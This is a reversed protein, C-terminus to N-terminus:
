SNPYNLATPVSCIWLKTASVGHSRQFASRSSRGALLIVQPSNICTIKGGYIQQNFCRMVNHYPSLHHLPFTIRHAKSFSSICTTTMLLQAALVVMKVNSPPTQTRSPGYAAAFDRASLAIYVPIWIPKSYQTNGWPLFYKSRRVSQTNKELPSQLPIIVQKHLFLKIRPCPHNTHDLRQCQFQQTTPVPRDLSGACLICPPVQRDLRYGNSKSM